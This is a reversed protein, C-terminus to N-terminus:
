KKEETEVEILKNIETLATKGADEFTFAPNSRKQIVWNLAQLLLAKPKDDDSLWAIPANAKKEIESYQASNEWHLCMLIDEFRGCGISEAIWKCYHPSRPEWLDRRNRTSHETCFVWVGSFVWLEDISLAKWGRNHVNRGTSEAYANTATVFTQMFEDTWFIRIYDLISVLPSDYNELNPKPGDGFFEPKFGDDSVGAGGRTRVGPPQLVEEDATTEVGWAAGPAAIIPLVPQPVAIEDDEDDDEDNQEDGQDNQPGQDDSDCDESENEELIPATVTAPTTTLSTRASKRQRSSNWKPKRM